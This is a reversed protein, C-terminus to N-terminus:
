HSLTDTDFVSVLETDFVLMFNTDIASMYDVDYVLLSTDLATVSTPRVPM